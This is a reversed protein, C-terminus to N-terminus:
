MFWLEDLAVLLLLSSFLLKFVLLVFRLLLAAASFEGVFLLLLLGTMLVWLVSFPVGLEM